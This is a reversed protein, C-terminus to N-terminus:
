FGLYTHLSRRTSEPVRDHHGNQPRGTELIGELAGITREAYFRLLLRQDDDSIWLNIEGKLRQKKPDYEFLKLRYAPLDWGSRVLREKEMEVQFHEIEKGNYVTFDQRGGPKLPMHRLQHLLGMYDLTDPVDLTMRQTETLQSWAEDKLSAAQLLQTPPTQLSAGKEPKDSTYHYGTQKDRDFWFIERRANDTRQSKTALLPQLLSADLWSHYDLRLPYLLEAKTFPETTLQLRTVYAARGEIEQQEPEVSLILKAIDLQVFGTVVGRFTLTYELAEGPAPSTNAAMCPSIQMVLILILAQIRLIAVEGETTM